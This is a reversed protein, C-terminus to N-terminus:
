RTKDTVTQTNLRFCSVSDFFEWAARVSNGEGDLKLIFTSGDKRSIVVHGQHNLGVDQIKAYGTGKLLKVTENLTPTLSVSRLTEQEIWLAQTQTTNPRTLVAFHTLPDVINSPITASAILQGTSPSLTSFHPIYSTTSKAVGVVYVADADVIVKSYVVGSSFCFYSSSFSESIVIFYVKQRIFDLEM